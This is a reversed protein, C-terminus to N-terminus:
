FKKPQQGADIKPTHGLHSLCTIGFRQVYVLFQRRAVVWFIKLLLHTVPASSNMSILCVALVLHSASMNTAIFFFSRITMESSGVAETGTV